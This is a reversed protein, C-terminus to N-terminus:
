VARSCDFFESLEQDGFYAGNRGWQSWGLTRDPLIQLMCPFIEQGRDLGLSRALDLGEDMVFPAPFGSLQRVRRVAEAPGPTLVIFRVGCAELEPLRVRLRALQRLCVPCDPRKLTVVVLNKESALAGVDVVQGDVDTVTAPFRAPRGAGEGPEVGLAPGLALFTGLAVMLGAAIGLRRRRPPGLPEPLCGVAFNDVLRLILAHVRVVGQM